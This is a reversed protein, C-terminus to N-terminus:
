ARFPAHIASFPAGVLDGQLSLRQVMQAAAAALRPDTMMELLLGLETGSSCCNSAAHLAELLLETVMGPSSGSRHLQELRQALADRFAQSGLLQSGALRTALQAANPSPLSASVQGPMPNTIHNFGM